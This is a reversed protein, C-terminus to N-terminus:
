RRRARRRRPAPGTAPAAGVRERWDGGRVLEMGATPRNWVYIWVPVGAPQLGAGLCQTRVRLYESADDDGPVVGEFADLAALAREPEELAWLEGVVVGAEPDGARTMAPHGNGTDWLVGRVLCRDIRAAGLATLDPKGALTLGEMLSGYFVILEPPPPSM